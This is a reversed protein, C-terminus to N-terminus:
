GERPPLSAPPEPPGHGDAEPFSMRLQGNRGDERLDRLLRRAWITELALVAIGVAVVFHAIGRLLAVSAVLVLLTTLLSLVVMHRATQSTTTALLELQDAVPMPLPEREHSWASALIGVALIGVIVALSVQVPIPYHHALMMKVGVFALIFVLSMKLYRFRDMLPAVAFYLSRLGLVAFVNSTFVLFPDRTVAFIAPISDVAFMVDSTEVLALVLFLPTAARRGDQQVFFHDGHLERTVPFFRRVLRVALSQDPELHDQRAVLMRVATLILITGFVYVTWSFRTILAAGALIMAGRLVLAGLVGWFLVRHQIALPIRFYAFILAIIFMNDLSLSKELLFGTFFQLAATRGDMDVVSQGGVGLWNNEYIFFVGTNFVLALSIWFASWALAEGFGIVHPRRHFVGLDLALLLFILLLFGVWPLIM